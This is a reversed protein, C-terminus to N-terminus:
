KLPELVVAGVPPVTIAGKGDSIVVPAGNTALADRWRTPADAPLALTLAAPKKGRNVAVIVADAGEPWSRLFALADDSTAVTAYGGRTLAKHRRRLDILRRYTELLQRDQAKGWLMDSRNEPWVGGQRGVENGWTIVPIGISTLQLTAALVMKRRDGGLRSYMTPVDHTDLYHALVQRKPFRHRAQLFRSFAVPRGRELLFGEVEGNFGFDFLTDMQDGIYESAYDEHMTAGWVEGLMFFDPKIAKARRALDRWVDHGVHKVTDVRFGDCGTRQIWALQWAVLQEAVKPDETKFDPLGLLCKLLDDETAACTGLETSRVMAGDTVFHSGYGPHNLVVDVLVKIGLGHAADVLGRLEEETGFRPEVRTFDEAWYGHYGWDPFGAGTVPHGIQEVVPTIWLATVGLESLYGLKRTLGRWDGGHFAGKDGKKVDRDNAPDGDFFRDTMAFYLIEDRWDRAAGPEVVIRAPDDFAPAAAAVGCPNVILAVLLIAGAALGHRRHLSARAQTV